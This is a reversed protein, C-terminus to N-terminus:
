VHHIVRFGIDPRYYHNEFKIKNVATYATDVASELSKGKATVGLVRGGNTVCKGDKRATGAHYVKVDPLSEATELGTIEKGTQYSGPYGGSAMVVCVAASSDWRLATNGLEGHACRNLIEALDSQLLFLIPQTEPDGFRCNFELVSPGNETMMIGAYIVGNYEIGEQHLGNILPKCISDIIASYNESSIFPVPAYAGMGGTNPGKDGAFIQKHDQSPLLPVVSKGDSLVLVSVEQGSLLEEIVFQNGAEGFEKQVAVRHVADEAEELSRCVIAGKGACLGDAKIVRALPNDRMYEKAHSISKESNDPFIRFPATPISYKSMIQKAFVKSGELQAAAKVPGFIPFGMKKFRDALGDVLPVEPGVVTLDVNYERVIQIIGEFDSGKVPLCRADQAIGANGPCCYINKILPSQRLKWVLAHERGGSGIVLVNM